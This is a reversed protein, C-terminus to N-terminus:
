IIQLGVHTGSRPIGQKTGVIHHKTLTFQALAEEWRMKKFNPKISSLHIIIMIDPAADLGNKFKKENCYYIIIVIWSRM